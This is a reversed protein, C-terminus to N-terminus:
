ENGLARRSSRRRPMLDTMGWTRVASDAWSRGPQRGAAAVPDLAADPPELPEASDGGCRTSSAAPCLFDTAPPNDIAFAGIDAVVTFRDPGDVRYIGVTDNGGVDPGVLTVLVDATRGLFAVDVPGGFGVAPIL